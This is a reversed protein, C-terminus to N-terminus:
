GPVRPDIVRRWVPPVLALLIMAGYGGPLQPSTDYHQLTNYTRGAHFHHDSHRQLQFLYANSVFYASNWSHHEDVREYTGNADQRRALGYHEIYNIVELHLIAGIAQAVFYLLGTAGFATFSAFALAVTLMTWGLLGNRMSWFGVGDRQLRKMQLQWANAVNQAVARSLYAYVSEGKKATSPDRPTAVWQHHGHVHEIKFTAYGVCSLLFGGLWQEIRTPKHILEHATNIALAGAVTGMSLAWGLQGVWSFPATAFVQMAWVLTVVYIPVAAVPLARFWHSLFKSDVPDNTTDRGVVYDILTFAGFYVVLPMWAFADLHGSALGNGYARFMAIPLLLSLLAALARLWRMVNASPNFFALIM